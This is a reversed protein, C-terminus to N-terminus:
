SFTFDTNENEYITPWFSISILSHILKDKSGQLSFRNASFQFRQGNIEYGRRFGPDPM